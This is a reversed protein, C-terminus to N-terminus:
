DTGRPHTPVVWVESIGTDITTIIVVPVDTENMASFSGLLLTRATGKRELNGTFGASDSLRCVTENPADIDFLTVVARFDM